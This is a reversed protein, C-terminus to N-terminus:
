ILPDGSELIENSPDKIILEKYYDVLMDLRGTIKDVEYKETIPISIFTPREDISQPFLRAMEISQKM